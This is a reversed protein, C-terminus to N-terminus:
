GRVRQLVDILSRQAQEDLTRGLGRRVPHGAQGPAQGADGLVASLTQPTM